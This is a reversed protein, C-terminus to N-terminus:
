QPSLLKARDVAEGGAPTILAKLTADDVKLERVTGDFYAAPFGQPSVQGLAALPNAPDFPLDEPKTWPVAKDPGAQVCMLTNSKGDRIDSVILKKGRDFAADPGTFVMIRTKGDSPGDLSQFVAPMNKAAQLNTPSDWPEDLHFRELAASGELYPLIAVRWSLLPKGDKVIAAPPYSHHQTEYMIMGIAIQRLNNMEQARRGASRAERVYQRIAALITPGASDLIEPRKIDLTAQSGSQTVKANGVIEDALKVLPAFTAQMQKPVNTALSQKAISLLAAITKVAQQVSKAVKDASQADDTDAVGYLLSPATLNLTATGGRLLKAAELPSFGSKYADVIKDFSPCAQPEGAIIVDNDVDVKKLREALPGKPATVAVVKSMNEKSTLVITNKAPLYAMPADGPGLDLCTKGGVQVEQIPSPPGQVNLAQLKTLMAKADVDHTFRAVVVGVPEPDGPNEVNMSILVVLQDIERPDIGFRNIASAVAEDKLEEAVPPLLAIRRPRIVIAAFDEPVVLSIDIPATKGPAAASDQSAVINNPDSSPTANKGDCGSFVVILMATALAAFSRKCYM